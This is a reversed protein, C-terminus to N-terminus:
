ISFLNIILIKLDADKIMGIERVIWPWSHRDSEAMFYLLEDHYDGSQWYNTMM